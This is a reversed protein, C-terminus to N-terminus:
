LLSISRGEKASKYIAEIIRVAKEGEVGDLTFPKNDRKSSIYDEYERKHCMYDVDPSNNSTFSAESKSYREKILADEEKEVKFDWRTILENELIVSGETGYLEIRRPYGSYASTTATISGLAGSTFKLAISATDEVEINEHTLLATYASLSSVDGALYQMLDVTHIGQNMLVGGGDLKKTGRWPASDYYAQSRFVPLVASALVLTGFRGETLAKKVEQISSFYRNQFIVGVRRNCRKAVENIENCRELTVELPKEVMIDHGSELAKIATDLHAGSPTTIVITDIRKDGLLEDLSDYSTCSFEKAFAKAKETNHNYCALLTAEKISKIASAHTKAIGGTGVIAFTEM